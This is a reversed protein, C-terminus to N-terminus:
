PYEYLKLGNTCTGTSSAYVDGRHLLGNELTMEMTSTGYLTFGGVGGIRRLPTSTGFSLQITQDCLNTFQRVLASSRAPFRASNQFTSTVSVVSSTSNADPAVEVAGGLVGGKESRLLVVLLVVLVVVGLLLKWKQSSDSVRITDESM